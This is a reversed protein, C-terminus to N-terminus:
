QCKLIVVGSVDGSSPTPMTYGIALYPQTQSTGLTQVHHLVGNSIFVGNLISGVVTATAHADGGIAVDLTFKELAAFTLDLVATAANLKGPAFNGSTATPSTSAVATCNLKIDPAGVTLDPVLKVPKGVAFHDGQNVSVQGLDSSGDTWRGIAYDGNGSVDVVKGTNLGFLSNADIGLKTYAGEATAKQLSAPFAAHSISQLVPRTSTETHPVFVVALPDASVAPASGQVTIVPAPPPTNGPQQAAPADGGGGGCAALTLLTAASITSLILKTKQM